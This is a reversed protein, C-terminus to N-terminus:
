DPRFKGTHSAGDAAVARVGRGRGARGAGGGGRAAEEEAHRGGPTVIEVIRSGGGLVRECSAGAGALPRAARRRHLRRGGSRRGPIAALGLGPPRVRSQHMFRKQHLFRSQGTIGLQSLIGRTSEYIGSRCGGVERPVVKAV